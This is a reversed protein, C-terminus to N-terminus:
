EGLVQVVVRRERPRNDFNVVVIQQWTGLLLRGDRFPATFSTGALFSRLHSFGNGDHWTEDHAYPRDSPVLREMMEPVDRCLGPEFEITSVGATSGVVSVSVIGAKLGSGALAEQVRDTVDVMDCGDGASVNFEESHVNVVRLTVASVRPRLRDQVWDLLVLRRAFPGYRSRSLIV